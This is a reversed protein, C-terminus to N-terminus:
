QWLEIVTSAKLQQFEQVLNLAKLCDEQHNMQEFRFMIYAKIDAGATSLKVAM